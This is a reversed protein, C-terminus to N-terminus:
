DMSQNNTEKKVFVQKIFPRVFTEGPGLVYGYQEAMQKAKDSAQKGEPLKRILANIFREEKDFDDPNRKTAGVSVSKAPKYQNQLKGGKRFAKVTIPFHGQAFTESLVSEPVADLVQSAYLTLLFVSLNQYSVDDSAEQSISFLFGDKTDYYGSLSGSSTDLRYLMYIRDHFLIEKMLAGTLEGSADSIEFAVGNTPLTHNRHQLRAKLVEENYTNRYSLNSLAAINTHYFSVPVIDFTFENIFPFLAITTTVHLRQTQELVALDHIGHVEIGYKAYLSAILKRKEENSRYKNSGQVIRKYEIAPLDSYPLPYPGMLLEGDTSVGYACSTLDFKDVRLYELTQLVLSLYADVVRKDLGDNERQLRVVMGLYEAFERYKGDKKVRNAVNNYFTHLGFIFKEPNIAALELQADYLKVIEKFQLDKCLFYISCTLKEFPIGSIGDLISVASGFTRSMIIRVVEPKGQMKKEMRKGYKQDFSSAIEGYESM